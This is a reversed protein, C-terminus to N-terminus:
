LKGLAEDTALLEARREAEDNEEEEFVQVLRLVSALRELVHQWLQEAPTQAGGAYAGKVKVTQLAWFGAAKLEEILPHLAGPVDFSDPVYEWAEVEYHTNVAALPSAPNAGRRGADALMLQRAHTTSCAYLPEQWQISDGLTVMGNVTAPDGPDAARTVANRHVCWPRVRYATRLGCGAAGCRGTRQHRAHVSWPDEGQAYALEDDFTEDDAEDGGATVQPAWGRVLTELAERMQAATPRATFDIM